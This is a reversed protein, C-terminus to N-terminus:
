VLVTLSFYCNSMVTPVAPELYHLMNIGMRIYIYNALGLPTVTYPVTNSDLAGIDFGGNFM